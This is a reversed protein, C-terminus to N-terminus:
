DTLHQYSHHEELTTAVYQLLTANLRAEENFLIEIKIPQVAIPLKWSQLKEQHLHLRAADKETTVILKEEGEWNKFTTQIEELDKTVFYHHDPYSLTHIAKSSAQLHRVLTEPKAIGCVLLLNKGILDIPTNEFLRYPTDYQITSFFVQQNPLPNMRKLISEKEEVTLDNPCKSVIILDARTYAKRNERLRGYPLIHDEYFPHAYDTILINKGPKVSRHQYADDLLVVEVEPRLQLLRPIGTIREEAVCVAVEPYKMHYQMPEDGIRLANTQEDAMLFGQTRRKYGRSLTAVQYEYQLLRILYEVHPTKGTGGVSLNGVSIVPVSFTVSSFFGTDYLRNRLWVVAGYLLAVPYLLIRVLAFAYYLGNRDSM